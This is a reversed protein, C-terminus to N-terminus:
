AQDNAWVYGSIIGFGVARKFDMMVELQRRNAQVLMNDEENVGDELLLLNERKTVILRQSSNMYRPSLIQVNTFDVFENGAKYDANAGFDGRLKRFYWTRLTPSMLMVLDQGKFENPLGDVVTEVKTVINSADIVGTTIPSIKTATIADTVVKLIGNFSTNAAGATGPTPAAYVGNIACSSVERAVKEVIKEYIFQVFPYEEPSSGNTKLYGIWSAELAKPTFPFDVKVGRVKITEPKFTAEGKPTWGSQYPQMMEQIEMETMVYEDQVGSLVNFYKRADEALYMKSLIAARNQRYYAGLDNNLAAVNLDAM